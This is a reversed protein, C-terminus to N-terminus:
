DSIDISPRQTLYSIGERVEVMGNTIGSELESVSGGGFAHIRFDQILPLRIDM